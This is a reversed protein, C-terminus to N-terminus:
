LKVGRTKYSMFEGKIVCQSYRAGYFGHGSMM